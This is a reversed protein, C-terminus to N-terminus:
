AFKIGVNCPIKVEASGNAAMAQSHEQLLHSYTKMLLAGGDKHGLWRAVTPVDVGAQIARTAFLHRLDHHTLHPLNLTTCASSLAHPCKDIALIFEANRTTRRFRPNAKLDALLRALGANMPLFRRESNKTGSFGGHIWIGDAKVHSWKVNRAEDIRCGTFALFEVMDGAQVSCWGGQKRITDVIQTLQATSPLEVVKQKIRARGLSLAPNENLAGQEVAVQFIKRLVGISNNFRQPSYKDSFRKAWAELDRKSIAKPKATKLEPWSEFIAKVVQEYYHISSPKIKVNNAVKELCVEACMGVTADGTGVDRVAETVVDFAKREKAIRSKAVTFVDTKLSIWKPKSDRWFRAYYRGSTEDRLLNDIKTTKWKMGPM